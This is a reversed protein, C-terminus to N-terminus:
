LSRADPLCPAGGAASWFPKSLDGDVQPRGAARSAAFDPGQRQLAPFIQKMPECEERIVEIRKAYVTDGAKERAKELLAFYHEVDGPRVFGGTLTIQRSVPRMWVEEAFRYFERMEEAAPGFFTRCYEGIYAELDLDPDWYLRAQIAYNLHNLGPNLMRGPAHSCEVFEGKSRGRLAKMDEQLITPFFAPVGLLQGEQREGKVRNKKGLQFRYYEWIYFQGSPLKKWWQERDRFFAERDEPFIMDRGRHQCYALAVNDHMKEIDGPPLRYFSYALGLVLKDPHKRGIREAADNVFKWVYDSMRGDRGREERLWGAAVDRDDMSTFADSPGVPFITMEPYEAFFDDAYESLAEALPPALRPLQGGKQPRHGGGPAEHGDLLRGGVVAFYEPHSGAMFRTINSTGHALWIMEEMGLKQRKFWLFGEKDSEPFSWLMFRLGFAPKVSRDQEAAKVTAATPIVTGFDYYPLYWRVGLSELFDYVAFLTGTPDYVSFGMEENVRRPNYLGSRPIDWKKGTKKQWELTLRPLDDRSRYDRPVPLTTGDRGLLVLAKETAVVRYGEMPLGTTEVGLARTGESEGVYILNPTSGDAKTVIPLTAGSMARLHEQLERAAFRVQPLADEAVVIQSQPKGDRVLEVGQAVTCALLCLIPFFSRRLM